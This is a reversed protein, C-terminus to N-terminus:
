VSVRRLLEITSDTRTDNSMTFDFGIFGFAMLYSALINVDEVDKAHRTGHKQDPGRTLLTRARERRGCARVFTLSLEVRTSAFDGM